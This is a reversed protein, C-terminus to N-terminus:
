FRFFDVSKKSNAILIKDYNNKTILELLKKYGNNGFFISYNPKIISEM